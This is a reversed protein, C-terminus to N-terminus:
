AASEGVASSQGTQLVGQVKMELEKVLPEVEDRFKRSAEIWFRQDNSEQGMQRSILADWMIGNIKVFVDRLEPRLFVSNQIIYARFAMGSKKADHLEYWFMIDRYYKDKDPAQRLEAKHAASLPSAVLVEEMREPSLSSLVTYGRYTSVIAAAHDLAVHLLGWAEPLVAFERDQLKITRSLEADIRKKLDQLEKAHAHREVDLQAAFKAEIWKEGLFRFILYALVSAGGGYAVMSWLFNSVQIM